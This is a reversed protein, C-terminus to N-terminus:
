CSAEILRMASPAPLLMFTWELALEDLIFDTRAMFVDDSVLVQEALVSQVFADPLDMVFQPVKPEVQVGLWTSWANVFAGSIINGTEELCSRAMDNIETVPDSEGNLLLNVLKIAHEQSVVLLAQGHLQGSLEMLLGVSPTSEDIQTGVEQIPVQTFGETSIKVGRKLWKSMARSANFAGNVAITQLANQRLSDLQCREEMLNLTEHSPILLMGWQLRQSDLLFETSAVFVEDRYIAMDALLPDLISSVMDHVFTPVKPEIHLKLWKALSNAYASSVINGTECLCSQELEGFESSTGPPMQVMIDVLSLATEEPFTLLIHGFLDGALPLHIAAIAEDPAGIVAAAEAIPVSEFGDCTLRVGRRMWKSLARSAAYAGNVAVTRLATSLEITTTQTQTM